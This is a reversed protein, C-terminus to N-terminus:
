YSGRLFEIMAKYSKDKPYRDLENVRLGRDVVGLEKLVTLLQNPTFGVEDCFDYIARWQVKDM